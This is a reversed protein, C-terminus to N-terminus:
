NLGAIRNTKYAGTPKIPNSLPKIIDQGEHLGPLSEVNEALTKGTV